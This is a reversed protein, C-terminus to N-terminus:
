LLRNGGAVLGGLRQFFQAGRSQVGEEVQEAALRVQFDLAAGFFHDLVDKALKGGRIWRPSEAEDLYQLGNAGTVGPLDEGGQGHSKPPQRSRRPWPPKPGIPLVARRRGRRLPIFVADSSRGRQKRRQRALAGEPIM